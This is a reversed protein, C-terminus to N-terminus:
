HCASEEVTTIDHRLIYIGSDSDDLGLASNLKNVPARSAEFQTDAILWRRVDRSAVQCLNRATQAHQGVGSSNGACPAPQVM